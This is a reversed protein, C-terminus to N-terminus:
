LVYLMAVCLGIILVVAICLLIIDKILRKDGGEEIRDADPPLVDDYYSDYGEDVAEGVVEMVPLKEKKNSCKRRKKGCVPCVVADQEPLASGCNRCIM